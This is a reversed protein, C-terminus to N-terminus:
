FKFSDLVQDVQTTAQKIHALYIRVFLIFDAKSPLSAGQFHLLLLIYERHIAPHTSVDLSDKVVLGMSSIAKHIHVKVDEKTGPPHGATHNPLPSDIDEQDSLKNHAKGYALFIVVFGILPDTESIV